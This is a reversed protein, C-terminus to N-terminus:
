EENSERETTSAHRQDAVVIWIEGGRKTHGGGADTRHQNIPYCYHPRVFSRVFFPMTTLTLSHARTHTHNKNINDREM